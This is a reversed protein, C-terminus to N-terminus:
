PLLRVGVAWKVSSAISSRLPCVALKGFTVKDAAFWM